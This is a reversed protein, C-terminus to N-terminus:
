YSDSMDYGNENEDNDSDGFDTEDDDKEHDDNEDYYSDADDDNDDDSDGFDIDDEDHDNSNKNDNDVANQTTMIADFLMKDRKSGYQQVVNLKTYYKGIGLKNLTKESVLQKKDDTLFNKMVKEKEKHKVKDNNQQIEDYNHFSKKYTTFINQNMFLENVMKIVKQQIKDSHYVIDISEVSTDVLLEDSNDRNQNIITTFISDRIHFMRFVCYYLCFKFYRKYLTTNTNPFCGYFLSITDYLSKFCPQIDKIHEIFAHYESDNSNNFDSLKNFKSEIYTKLSEVDSKMLKWQSKNEHGKKGYILFTPIVTSLNYIYNKVLQGMSLHSFEDWNDFTEFLKNRKGQLIEGIQEKMYVIQKEFMDEMTKLIDNDNEDASGKRNGNIYQELLTYVKEIPKYIKINQPNNEDDRTDEQNYDRNQICLKMKEWADLIRLNYPIDFQDQVNIVNHRNVHSLILNFKPLTLDVNEESEKLDQIIEEISSNMNINPKNKLFGTLFIPIPKTLSDLHFYRMFTKYILVDNYLCIANKDEQKSEITARIKEPLLVSAHSLKKIQEFVIEITKVNTYYNSIYNNEHQFYEIPNMPQDLEHCCTNEVVHFSSFNGLIKQKNKVIENIMELLSVSFLLSKGFYLGYYKWQEANGQNIMHSFREHIDKTITQVSDSKQNIETPKLPPLFRGWFENSREPNSQEKDSNEQLMVLYKRKRELLQRVEENLVIHNKFMNLIRSEMIDKSKENITKWPYATKDKLNRLICAFYKIIGLKEIEESLPYGDFNQICVGSNNPRFKYNTETQITIIICCVIMILLRDYYYDEYSLPKKKLETTQKKLLIELKANYKAKDQFFMKEHLFLRCLTMVQKEILPFSLFLKDAIKKVISVCILETYTYHSNQSTSPEMIVISNTVQDPTWDSDEEGDGDDDVNSYMGTDSFDMECIPYGTHVDYHYGDYIRSTKKLQILKEHYQGTRFAEALEFEFRPMLPVSTDSTICYYWYQNESDTPNRCYKNKFSYLEHQKYSFDYKYKSRIDDLISQHPSIHADQSYSMHGLKTHYQDHIIKEQKLKYLYFELRQKRREYEKEIHKNMKEMNGEYTKAAELKCTLDQPKAFSTSDVDKDYVWTHNVRKFYKQLKAVNSEMTIKNKVDESFDCYEVGLPLSQKLELLAYDGERVVKYGQILETALQDTNQISCGYETILTQKLFEYFAEPSMSTKQAKMKEMIAYQNGDYKTDYKLLPKNNDNQMDLLSTYFKSISKQEIDYFHQPEIYSGMMVPSILSSNLKLLVMSFFKLDDLNYMYQLFEDNRSLFLRYKKDYPINYVKAWDHIYTFDDDNQFYTKEYYDNLLKMNKDKFLHLYDYIHKQKDYNMKYMKMNKRINYIIKNRSKFSVDDRDIHYSLFTKMYEVISYSKLGAKEYKDILVFINPIITQLLTKYMPYKVQKDFLGLGEYTVDDMTVHVPVNYEPEEKAAITESNLIKQTMKKKKFINCLYPSRYQTKELISSATHVKRHNMIYEEPLLIMSDIDVYESEMAEELTHNKKTAYKSYFTNSHVRQVVCYQKLGFLDDAKFKSSYLDSSYENKNCALIVDMDRNVPITSAIPQFITSSENQYPKWYSKSLTNLMNKYKIFDSFNVTDDKRFLDDITKIENIIEQYGIDGSLIKKDARIVPYLWSMPVSLDYMKNVMPKYTTHDHRVCGTIKGNKDIISFEQRLEKFRNVHKYITNMKRRNRHIEPTKYVLTDLLDNVQVDVSYRIIFDVITHIDTDSDTDHDDHTNNDDNSDHLSKMDTEIQEDHFIEMNVKTPITYEVEGTETVKSSPELIPSDDGFIDDIVSNEKKDDDVLTDDSEIKEISENRRDEEKIANAKEIFSLPPNCFCINKLHIDKPFGKYGFDIYLLEQNPYTMLTIMDEELREIRATIIERIDGAFELEVWKKPLLGNQRAFGKEKSRSLLKIKDWFKMDETFGSPLRIEKMEMNDTQILQLLATPDYFYIYFVKDHYNNNKPSIIQIIDGLQLHNYEM